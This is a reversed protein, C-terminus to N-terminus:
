SIILVSHVHPYHIICLKVQTVLLSSPGQCKNCLINWQNNWQLFHEELTKQLRHIRATNEYRLYGGQCRTLVEDRSVLTPKFVYLNSACAAMNLTVICVLCLNPSTASSPPTYPIIELKMQKSEEADLPREKGGEKAFVCRNLLSTIRSKTSEPDLQLKVPGFPPQDVEGKVGAIFVGYKLTNRAEHLSCLVPACYVVCRWKASLRSFFVWCWSWKWEVNFDTSFCEEPGLEHHNRCLLVNMYSSHWKQVCQSFNMHEGPISQNERGSNPQSPPQTHVGMGPRTDREVTGGRM